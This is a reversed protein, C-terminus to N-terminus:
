GGQQDSQGQLHPQGQSLGTYPIPSDCDSFAASGLPQVRLPAKKRRPSSSAPPPARVYGSPGSKISTNPVTADVTVTRIESRVSSNGAEDTARAQYAHSGDSVGRLTISWAGSTNALATGKSIAGEFLEVTNGADATGSVVFTGGVLSTEQPNDITPTAPVATDATWTYTAPTPDTENSTGGTAKVYFTHPGDALSGEDPVAEPSTCTSYATADDLACQFTSNPESSTFEFTASTSNDLDPPGRTISTEPAPLTNLLVSVNNSNQNAAALDAFTDANLRAGIVFAPGDGAPFTQAAGFSGSGNNFLVSINDSGFNSVALDARADGDLDVSTVASPNTGAPLQPGTFFTGNSRLVSVINEDCKTAMIDGAGNADISTIPTGGTALSVNQFGGSGNGLLM